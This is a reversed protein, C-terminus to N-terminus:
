SWEALPNQFIADDVFSVDDSRPTNRGPDIFAQINYFSQSTSFGSRLNGLL